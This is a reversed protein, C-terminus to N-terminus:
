NVKIIQIGKNNLEISDGVRKGMLLKAMPAQLSLAFVSTQAIMIKGLGSSLYFYGLSTQVLSWLGIIETPELSIQKLFHLLTLSEQLQKGLKEAELQLMARGTEHKDGASSKSESQLGNHADLIGKKYVEITDEVHKVCSKHVSSKNLIESM